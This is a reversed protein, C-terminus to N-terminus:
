SDAGNFFSAAKFLETLPAKYARIGKLRSEQPYPNISLKTGTTILEWWLGMQGV